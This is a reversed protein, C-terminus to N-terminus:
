WFKYDNFEPYLHQKYIIIIIIIVGTMGLNPISYLVQLIVHVKAAIEANNNLSSIVPWKHM